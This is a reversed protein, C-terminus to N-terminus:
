ILFFRLTHSLPIKKHSVCFSGLVVWWGRGGDPPTITSLAKEEEKREKQHVEVDDIQM